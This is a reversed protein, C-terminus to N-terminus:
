HNKLHDVIFERIFQLDNKIQNVDTKLEAQQVQYEAFTKATVFNDFYNKSLTLILVLALGFIIEIINDSIKQGVSAM